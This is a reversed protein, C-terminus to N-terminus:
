DRLLMALTPLATGASYLVDWLLMGSTLVTAHSHWYRVDCLLMHQRLVAVRPFFGYEAQAKTRCLVVVKSGKGTRATLSYKLVACRTSGNGTETGCM